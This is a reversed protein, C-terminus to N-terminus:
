IHYYITVNKDKDITLYNIISSLMNKNIDKLNIFNDIITDYDYKQNNIINIKKLLKTEKDM